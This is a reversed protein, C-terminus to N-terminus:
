NASAKKLIAAKLDENVNNLKAMVADFQQEPYDADYRDVVKGGYGRIMGPKVAPNEHIHRFADRLLQKLESTLRVNMALPPYPIAESKALLRVNEAHISKNQV